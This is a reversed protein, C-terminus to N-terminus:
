NGKERFRTVNLALPSKLPGILETQGEGEERTTSVSSRVLSRLICYVVYLGGGEEGRFDVLEM